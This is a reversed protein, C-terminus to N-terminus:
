EIMCGDGTLDCKLVELSIAAETLNDVWHIEGTKLSTMKWKPPEYSLKVGVKAAHNAFLTWKHVEASKKNRQAITADSKTDTIM